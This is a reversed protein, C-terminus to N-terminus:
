GAAPRAAGCGATPRATGCGAAPRAAEACRTAGRFATAASRAAATRWACRSSLELPLGCARGRKRSQQHLARAPLERARVPWSGQGAGAARPPLRQRHLRQCVAPGAAQRQFKRRPEHGTPTPGTGSGGGPPRKITAPAVTGAGAGGGAGVGASAWLRVAVAGFAELRVRSRGARVLAREDSPRWVPPAVGTMVWIRAFTLGNRTGCGLM